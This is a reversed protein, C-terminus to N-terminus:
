IHNDQIYINHEYSEILLDLEPDPKGYKRKEAIADMYINRNVLVMDVAIAELVREKPIKLAKVLIANSNKFYFGDRTFSNLVKLEM